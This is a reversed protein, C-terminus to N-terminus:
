LSVLVIEKCILHNISTLRRSVIDHVIQFEPARPQRANELYVSGCSFFEKKTTIMNKADRVTKIKQPNTIVQVEFYIM